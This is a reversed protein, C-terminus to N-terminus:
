LFNLVCPWFRRQNCLQVTASGVKGTYKNTVKLNKNAYVAKNALYYPYAEKLSAGKHDGDAASAM